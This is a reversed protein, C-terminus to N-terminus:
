VKKLFHLGALYAVQLALPLPLPCFALPPEFGLCGEMEWMWSISPQEEGGDSKLRAKRGVGLDSAPFVM